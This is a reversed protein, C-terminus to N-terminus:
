LRGDATVETFGIQAVLVPDVWHARPLRGDEFPPEDREIEKLRAPLARLVSETYGTGVKGAYRLAGGGDPSGILLAGSGKRQGGPDTYGGIVFEQENVCKFKLWDRSRGHRYPAAARKAILGEWGDRCAQAYFRQGETNRHSLFRLPDAFSLAE